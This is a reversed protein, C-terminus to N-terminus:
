SVQKCIKIEQAIKWWEDSFPVNEYGPMDPTGRTFHVAKPIISDPTHGELWNWEANLHGIEEPKLWKFAHLDRGPWKKLINLGLKRNSPHANNILMLSSQNKRNYRTQKQGGMKESESPEYEHHVVMVAYRPDAQAFLKKVDDRFLFDSDCFLSWGRYGTLYPILFRSIAFETAMPAGSIEDHLQNGEQYMPRDYLGMGQLHPLLLPQINPKSATHKLISRVTVAYPLPYRHDFGVFVSSM